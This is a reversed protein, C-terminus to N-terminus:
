AQSRYQEMLAALEVNSLGGYAAIVYREDVGLLRGLRRRPLHRDGVGQQYRIAVVDVTGSRRGVRLVTPTFGETELWDAGWSKGFSRLRFGQLDLRLGVGPWIGGVAGYLGVAGLVLVAIGVYSGAAVISLGIAAFVVGLALSALTGRRDPKLLVPDV